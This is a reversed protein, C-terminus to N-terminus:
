RLEEIYSEIMAHDVADPDATLYAEFADRAEKERRADWLALGYERFAEPPCGAADLADRFADLIREPHAEPHRKRYMDAEHFFVLGAPVGIERQRKLLAHELQPGLGQRAHHLWANRFPAVHAQYAVTNLEPTGAQM